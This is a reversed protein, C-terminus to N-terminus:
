FTYGVRINFGKHVKSQPATRELNGNYSVGLFYSKYFFDLGAQWTSVSKNWLEETVMDDSSFLNRDQDGKEKGTIYIKYGIGGYPVILFDKGIRIDFALNMLPASVTLLNYKATKTQDGIMEGNFFNYDIKAGLELHMPLDALKINYSYGVGFGNWMQKADGEEAHIFMPSYEAYVKHFNGKDNTQAQTTVCVAALAAALFFKIRKM